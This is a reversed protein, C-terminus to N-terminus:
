GRNPELRNQINPVPYLRGIGMICDVSIKSSKDRHEKDTVKTYCVISKLVRCWKLNLIKLGTKIEKLLTHEELCEDTV